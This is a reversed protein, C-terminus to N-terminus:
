VVSRNPRGDQGAERLQVHRLDNGEGGGGRGPHFDGGHIREPGEVRVTHLIFPM